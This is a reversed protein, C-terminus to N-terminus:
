IEDAMTSELRTFLWWAVGLLVITTVASITVPMVDLAIGDIVSWRWFDVIGTIPNFALVTQLWPSLQSLPYAIPALFLGVQLVFPLGSAVDHFRVAVASFAVVVGLTFLLLWVVGVPILVVRPSLDGFGIAVIVAASGTIAMTPLTAILSSIPFALRPCATRRVLQWSGSISATGMNAASQFFSWVSLGVLAFLVYPIGRTNVNVIGGFGIVFGVLLMLPQILIWLPGLLSQKYKARLDRSAIVRIVPGYSLVDRLRLRRKV